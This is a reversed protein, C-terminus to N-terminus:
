IYLYCFLLFELGIIVVHNALTKRTDKPRDKNGTDLARNSDARCDPEIDHNLFYDNCTSV